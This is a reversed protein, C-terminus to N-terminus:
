KIPEALDHNYVYEILKGVQALPDHDEANSVSGVLPELLIREYTESYIPFIVGHIVEVAEYSYKDYHPGDDDYTDTVRANFFLLCRCQATNNQTMLVRMPKDMGM